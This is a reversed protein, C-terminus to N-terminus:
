AATCNKKVFATYSQVAATLGQPENQTTLKGGQAVIEVAALLKAVSSKLTTPALTVLNRIAPLDKQIDAATGTGSNFTILVHAQKCFSTVTAPGTIIQPATGTTLTPGTSAV